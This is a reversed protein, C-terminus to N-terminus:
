GLQSGSIHDNALYEMFQDTVCFSVEGAWDSKDKEARESGEDEVMGEGQRPPGDGFAEAIDREDVGEARLREVERRWEARRDEADWERRRERSEKERERWAEVGGMGHIKERAEVYV